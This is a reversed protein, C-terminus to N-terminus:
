HETYATEFNCSFEIYNGKSVPYAIPDSMPEIFHILVGNITTRKVAKFTAIVLKSLEYGSQFNSKGVRIIAQFKGKKLDPLNPDLKAGNMNHLLLIGQDETEPFHYMYVSYGTVNNGDILATRFPILNM